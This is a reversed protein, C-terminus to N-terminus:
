DGKKEAGDRGRLASRFAAEFIDKFQMANLNSIHATDRFNAQGGRVLYCHDDDCVVSSPDVLILRPNNGHKEMEQVIANRLGSMMLDPDARLKWEDIASGATLQNEVWRQPVDFGINLLPMILVVTKGPALLRDILASLETANGWNSGLVIIGPQTNGLVFDLTRRNFERCPQHDASNGLPDDVFARCNAQTAILGHLGSALAAASIPEVYQNAFSDGWL